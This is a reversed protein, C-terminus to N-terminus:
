PKEILKLFNGEIDFVLITKSDGDTLGVFYKEGKLKARVFELGGYNEAIYNQIITPLEELTEILEGPECGGHMFTKEEIFNGESDFVVLVGGDLGVIYYGNKFVKAGKIDTDAYNESLYTTISTPLDEIEVRDGRKGKCHGKGRPGRIGEGRLVNGSEDFYVYDESDLVVEYGLGTARYVDTEFTEFFNEDIYNGASTPLMEIDIAVKSEANAIQDVLSESESLTDKDCSTLFFMGVCAFMVFLLNKM